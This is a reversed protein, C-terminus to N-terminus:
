KMLIMKKTKSFKGVELRYFYVGSALNNAEFPVVYNGRAQEQNALEAVQQGLINFVRLTVRVNESISYTIRTSPNFPNPYNQYLVFAVPRERQEEQVQVVPNVISDDDFYVLPTTGGGVPVRYGRTVNEGGIGGRFTKFYKCGISDGERFSRIIRYISDNPAPERVLTDNGTAWGNFSFGIRVNDLSEPLFTRELIKVRMNVRFTVPVNSQAVAPGAFSFLFPILFLPTVYSRFNM